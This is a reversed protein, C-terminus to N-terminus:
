VFSYLIDSAIGSDFDSISLLSCVEGREFAAYLVFTLFAVNVVKYAFYLLCLLKHLFETSLAGIMGFALHIASVILAVSAQSVFLLTLALIMDSVAIMVVTM